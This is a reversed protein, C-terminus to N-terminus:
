RALWVERLSRPTAHDFLAPLTPVKCAKSQREIVEKEGYFGLINSPLLNTEWSHRMCCLTLLKVHLIANGLWDPVLLGYLRYILALLLVGTSTLMPVYQAVSRVSQCLEMAARRVGLVYQKDAVFPGLMGLRKGLTEHLQAKDPNGSTHCSGIAELESIVHFKLLTDRCAQLSAANTASLGRAIERRLSVLSMSFAPTDHTSLELLARGIGINFDNKISKDPELVCKKLSDWKGTVWSAEAAFPFALARSAESSQFGQVQNLLM